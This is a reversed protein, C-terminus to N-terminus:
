TGECWQRVKFCPWELTIQCLKPLSQVINTLLENPLDSATKITITTVPVFPQRLSRLMIDVPFGDRGRSFYEVHIDNVARGPILREIIAPSARLFQLNPLLNPPPQVALIFEYGLIMRTITPHQDLFPLWSVLEQDNRRPTMTTLSLEYLHPLFPLSPTTDTIYLHLKRLSQSCKRVFRTELQHNSAQVFLGLTHVPLPDDSTPLDPAPSCTLSLTMKRALGMFEPTSLMKLCEGPGFQMDMNRLRHMIPLHSWLPRLAPVEKCFFFNLVLRSLCQLLHPSSLISMIHDPFCGSCTPLIQITKFLRLQAPVRFATCVRAVSRLHNFDLYGIIHDVIEFPLQALM